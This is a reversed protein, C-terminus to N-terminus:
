KIYQKTNLSDVSFNVCDNKFVEDMNKKAMKLYKVLHIESVLNSQNSLAM